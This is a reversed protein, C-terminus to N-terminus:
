TTTIIYLTNPDKTQLQDYDSQSIKVAKIQIYDQLKVDNTGNSLYIDGNQRIEFANHKDFASTGNGVSFLTNGSDGFTTSASTTINYRGSAHEAFNSTQTQHGEAHSSDGDASCYKGEAHSAYSTASTGVGEAHSWMGSAVTDNNEAISLSGTGASIPLSISIASNTIDIGRGATYTSGGGTASIVNGSIEIGTGASLTDQKGSLSTEVNGSYTNFTTTDVKGSISNDIQTQADGSTIYGIDNTLQSASTPVTPIASTVAAQSMVDTTSSGTTQVVNISSGGLYDQLKIMPKEYYEGSANTDAIYIDGNSRVDIINHDVNTSGFHYGNGISFRTKDAEASGTNSINYTGIGVEYSNKVTVHFGFLASDTTYNPSNYDGVSIFKSGGKYYHTADGSGVVICNTSNVSTNDGFVLSNEGNADANHGIAIAYKGSASCESDGIIIGKGNSNTGATIPLTCNITDVTEGTTISINTGGSVAKGGGGGQIDINGSGLLSQNNITKINTGSVLTDQKGSTAQTIASNTQASTWYQTLDGAQADTIIYYTDASVTGASVLADYEAQTLEVTPNGGSSTASLTYDTGSVRIKDIINSM